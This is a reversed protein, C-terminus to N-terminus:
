YTFSIPGLDATFTTPLTIPSTLTGWVQGTIDGALGFAQGAAPIAQFTDTSGNSSLGIWYVGAPANYTGTFAVAQYSSAGSTTVGSLSSNAVVSGLANYLSVIYKNTGVTTGNLIKIGTLTVNNPIKIQTLYVTASNASVSTGGSVLVSPSFAHFNTFGAVTLVPGAIIQLQSGFKTCTLGSGCKIAQYLGLNTTNQYAGFGAFATVGFLVTLITILNKM